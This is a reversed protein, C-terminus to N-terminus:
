SKGSTPLSVNKFVFLRHSSVFAWRCYALLFYLIYFEVNFRDPDQPKKGKPMSKLTSGWWHDYPRVLYQKNSTTQNNMDSPMLDLIDNVSCVFSSNCLNAYHEIYMCVSNSIIHSIKNVHNRNHATNHFFDLTWIGMRSSYSNQNIWSAHKDYLLNLNHKFLNIHGSNSDLNEIQTIDGWGESTRDRFFVYIHDEM